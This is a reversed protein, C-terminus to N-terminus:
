NMFGLTSKHPIRRSPTILFAFISTISSILNMQREEKLLILIISCCITADHLPHSATKKLATL